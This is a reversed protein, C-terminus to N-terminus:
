ASAAALTSVLGCSSGKPLIGSYLNQAALTSGTAALTAASYTWGPRHARRPATLRRSRSLKTLALIVASRYGGPWSMGLNRAWKVQCAM